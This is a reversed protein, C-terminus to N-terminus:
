GLGLAATWPSLWWILLALTLYVAVDGIRNRSAFWPRGPWLARLGGMIALTGVLILVARHPHNTAAMLAITATALIVFLVSGKEMWKMAASRNKEDM